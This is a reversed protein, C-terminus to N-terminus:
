AWGDYKKFIWKFMVSGDVFPRVLPRQTTEFKSVLIRYAVRREGMRAVHGAM